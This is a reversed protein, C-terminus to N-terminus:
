IFRRKSKERLSDADKSGRKRCASLLHRTAWRKKWKWKKRWRTKLAGGTHQFLSGIDPQFRLFWQMARYKGDSLLATVKRNFALTEIIM